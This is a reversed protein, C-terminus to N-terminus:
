GNEGPGNACATCGTCGCTCNTGCTDNLCDRTCATTQPCMCTALATVISIVSMVSCAYTTTATEGTASIATNPQVRIDLDFDPDPPAASAMPVAGNEQNPNMETEGGPDLRVVLQGRHYPM